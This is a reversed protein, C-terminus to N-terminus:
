EGSLATVGGDDEVKGLVHRANEFDIGRAADRADLGADDEIIQASCGLLVVEGECGIGGGV